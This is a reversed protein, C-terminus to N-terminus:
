NMSISSMPISCGYAVQPFRRDLRTQNIPATYATSRIKGMQTSICHALASHIKPAAPCETAGNAPLGIARLWRKQLSGCLGLRRAVLRQMATGSSDQEASASEM